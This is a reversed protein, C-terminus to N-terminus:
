TVETPAPKASAVPVPQWHPARDCAPCHAYTAEARDYNLEFHGCVRCRADRREIPETGVDSCPYGFDADTEGPWLSGVRPEKDYGSCERTCYSAELPASRGVPQKPNSCTTCWARVGRKTPEVM